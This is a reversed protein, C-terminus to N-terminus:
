KPGVTVCRVQLATFNEEVAYTVALEVLDCERFEM